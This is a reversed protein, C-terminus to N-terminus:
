ILQMVREGNIIVEVYKNEKKVPTGICYKVLNKRYIGDYFDKQIKGTKEMRRLLPDVTAPSFGGKEYALVFLDVKKVYENRHAELHSLIVNECTKARKTLNM